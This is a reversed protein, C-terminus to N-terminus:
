RPPWTSPKKNKLQRLGIVTNLIASCFGVLFAIFFFIVLENPQDYLYIKGDNILNVMILSLPFAIILLIIVSQVMKGIDSARWAAVVFVV